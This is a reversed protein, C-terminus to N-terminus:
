FGHSRCVLATFYALHRLLLGDIIAVKDRLCLHRWTLLADLLFRLYRNIEATLLRGGEFYGLQELFELFKRFLDKHYM